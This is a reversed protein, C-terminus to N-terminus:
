IYVYARFRTTNKLMVEMQEASLKIITDWYLQWVEPLLWEGEDWKKIGVDLAFKFVAPDLNKLTKVTFRVNYSVPDLTHEQFINFVKRDSDYSIQFPTQKVLDKLSLARVPMGLHHMRVPVNDVRQDASESTDKTPKVLMDKMFRHQTDQQATAEGLIFSSATDPAHKVDEYRYDDSLGEGAFENHFILEGLKLITMPDSQVQYDGHFVVGLGPDYMLDEGLDDRSSSHFYLKDTLVKLENNEFYVVHGKGVYTFIIDNLNNEDPLNIM